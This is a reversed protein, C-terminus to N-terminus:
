VEEQEPSLRGIKKWHEKYCEHQEDLSQGLVVADIFVGPCGVREPPIDGVEVIENVEVITYQGAMALDKQNQMGTYRFEVNGMTDARYGKIIAVDATIAEEVLYSQENLTVTEKTNDLSPFLGPEDLIGVGVPVLVGGLGVAGARVKEAWTGMPYFQNVTLQGDLYQKTSEVTTGVHTGILKKIQGNEFLKAKGFGGPIGATNTILTLGNIDSKELWEICSLPEGAGVFESVMLMSNSKVHSMAEAIESVKLSMFFMGKM